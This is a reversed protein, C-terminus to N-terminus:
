RRYNIAGNNRQFLIKATFSGYNSYSIYLKRIESNNLFLELEQNEYISINSNYSLRSSRTRNYYERESSIREIEDYNLAISSPRTSTSSNQRIAEPPIIDISRTTHFETEEFYQKNSQCLVPESPQSNSNFDTTISTPSQLDETTIEKKTKDLNIQPIPSLLLKTKFQKLNMTPKKFQKSNSYM